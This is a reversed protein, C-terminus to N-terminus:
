KGINHMLCFDKRHDNAGSVATGLNRFDCILYRTHGGNKKVAAYMGTVSFPCVTSNNHTGHKNRAIVVAPMFRDHLLSTVM